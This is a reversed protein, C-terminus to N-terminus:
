SVRPEAESVGASDSPAPPQGVAGDEGRVVEGMVEDGAGVIVSLEADSLADLSEPKAAEFSSAELDKALKLMDLATGLTWKVPTIVVTRGDVDKAKVALPWRVMTMAKARLEVAIEHDSEISKLRRKEQVAAYRARVRDREVVLHNDWLRAREVWSWRASHLKLTPMSRACHKSAAELSRSVGLDRYVGWAAFAEESEGPQRDFPHNLDLTADSM